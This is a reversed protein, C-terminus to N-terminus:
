SHTESWLVARACAFTHRMNDCNIRGLREVSDAMTVSVHENKGELEDM